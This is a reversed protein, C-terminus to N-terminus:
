NLMWLYCLKVAPECTRSGSLAPGNNNNNNNNSLRERTMHWKQKDEPKQDTLEDKCSCTLDGARPKARRVDQM